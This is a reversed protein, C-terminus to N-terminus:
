MGTKREIQRDTNKVTQTERGTQAQGGAIKKHFFTMIWFTKKGFIEAGFSMSNNIASVQNIAKVIM